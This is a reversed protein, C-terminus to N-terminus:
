IVVEFAEAVLRVSLSRTRGRKVGDVRITVPRDFDISWSATRVAHLDPHPLHTGSRSRSRAVRRQSWPVTGITIDFLGDSPHSRPGLDMVGDFQANMVACWGPGFARATTVHAVFPIDGSDVTAIGLDIPIIMSDGSGHRDVTPRGGLTRHLDGGALGVIPRTAGDRRLEHALAALEADSTAVPADDPRVGPRGLPRGKEIAM